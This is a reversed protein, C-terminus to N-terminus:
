KYKNSTYKLKNYVRVDMLFKQYAQKLYEKDEDDVTNGCLMLNDMEEISSIMKEAEKEIDIIENQSLENHNGYPIKKTLTEDLLYDTSVNLTKPLKALILGKPERKNNEYRSLTAETIGVLDALERQNLNLEERLIQIKEGITKM